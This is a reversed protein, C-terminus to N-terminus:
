RYAGFGLINFREGITIVSYDLATPLEVVRGNVLSSESKLAALDYSKNTGLYFPHIQVDFVSGIKGNSSSGYEEMIVFSDLSDVEEIAEICSASTLVWYNSIMTLICGFVIDQPPRLKVLALVYKNQLTEAEEEDSLGSEFDEVDSKTQIYTKEYLNTDIKENTPTTVVKTHKTNVDSKTYTQTDSNEYYHTLATTKASPTWSCELGPDITSRTTTTKIKASTTKVIKSTVHKGTESLSTDVPIKTPPYEYTDQTSCALLHLILFILFVVFVVLLVAELITLARETKTFSQCWGKFEKCCVDCCM